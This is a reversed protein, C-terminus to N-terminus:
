VCDPILSIKIEVQMKIENCKVSVQFVNVGLSTTMPMNHPDTSKSHMVTLQANLIEIM